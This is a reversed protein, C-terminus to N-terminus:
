LMAHPPLNQIPPVLLHGVADSSELVARASSRRAAPRIPTTPRMPLREVRCVTRPDTPFASRHRSRTNSMHACTLSLGIETRWSGSRRLCTQNGQAGACWAAAAGFDIRSACQGIQLRRTCTAATPRKHCPPPREAGTEHWNVAHLGRNAYDLSCARVRGSCNLVRERAETRHTLLMATPPVVFAGCLTQLVRRPELSYEENALAPHRNSREHALPQRMALLENTPGLRPMRTAHLAYARLRM